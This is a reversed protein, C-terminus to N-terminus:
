AYTRVKLPIGYNQALRKCAEIEEGDIYTVVSLQVEKKAEACAKAFRLMEPFANDYQPRVIENYLEENAANLSISYSDVVENLEPLIDRGNYLCGLGNTNVRIKQRHHKRFYHATELLTDLACTPEGYGCYILEEYNSFDFSDIKQIVEYSTPEKSHWMNGDETISDKESRVCFVCNCTCRNTLNVYVGNKYTYLIVGM